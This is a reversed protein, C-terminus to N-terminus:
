VEYTSKSELQLLHSKRQTGGAYGTLAGNRGLVRHCPVIVALPNRGIAGGVARVATRAQVQQAIDAYSLTNGFAVARLAQWVACQFPTGILDLPVDFGTSQGAFYAELQLAATQLLEDNTQHPVTLEGPHHKQGEFWAGCLGNQSRAGFTHEDISTSHMGADPNEHRLRSFTTPSIIKTL